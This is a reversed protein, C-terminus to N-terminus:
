KYMQTLSRFVFKCAVGLKPVNGDADFDGDFTVIMYPPNAGVAKRPPVQVEAPYFTTTNPYLAMVKDSKKYKPLDSFSVDSLLETIQDQTVHHHKTEEEQQNHTTTYHHQTTTNHLPTTYHNRTPQPTTATALFFYFFFSLFFSFSLLSSLSFFFFFISTMLAHQVGLAHQVPCNSCSVLNFISYYVRVEADAIVWQDTSNDLRVVKGLIYSPEASEDDFVKEFLQFFYKLTM